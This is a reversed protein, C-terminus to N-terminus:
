KKAPRAVATIVACICLVAIGAIDFVRSAAGLPLYMCFFALVMLLVIVNKSM